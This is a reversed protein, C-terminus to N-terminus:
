GSECQIKFNDVTNLLFEKLFKIGLYQMQDTLVRSFEHLLSNRLFCERYHVFWTKRFIAAVLRDKSSFIIKFLRSLYLDPIFVLFDCLYRFTPFLMLTATQTVAFDTHSLEDIHPTVTSAVSTSIHSFSTWGSHGKAM